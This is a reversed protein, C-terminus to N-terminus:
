SIIDRNCWAPPHFPQDKTPAKLWIRSEAQGEISRVKVEKLHFLIEETELWTLQALHNQKLFLFGLHELFKSCSDHPYSALGLGRWESHKGYCVNQRPAMPLCQWLLLCPLQPTMIWRRLILGRLPLPPFFCLASQEDGGELSSHVCLSGTDLQPIGCGPVKIKLGQGWACRSVYNFDFMLFNEKRRARLM